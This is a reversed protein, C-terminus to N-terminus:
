EWRAALLGLAEYFARESKRLHRASPVWYPLTAFDDRQALYHTPAAIPALGAQKFHRMARPMHSASTVLLLSAGQGLRAVAARAEQGTDTPTDLVELQASPVGIEKAVRAYALAMPEINEHRSAGSVILTAEPNLHWLRLGELLRNAASDSLQGTIVWPQNPQYGAGLVMVANVAQEEPWDHLAPYASEFPLLLRDAVPAWSLLVLLVVAVFSCGAGLKRWRLRLLLGFVFLVLCLPLPMLLQAAMVKVLTYFAM